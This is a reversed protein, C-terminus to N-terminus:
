HGAFQVEISWWRHRPETKKYLEYDGQPCETRLRVFSIHEKQGYFAGVKTRGGERIGPKQINKQAVSILIGFRYKRGAWGFDYNYCHNVLKHDTAKCKNPGKSYKQYLHRTGQGPDPRGTVRPRIM